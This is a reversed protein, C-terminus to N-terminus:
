VSIFHIASQQLRLGLKPGKSIIRSQKDLLRIGMGIIAKVSTKLTNIFMKKMFLKFGFSFAGKIM